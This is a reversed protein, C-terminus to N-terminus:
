VVVNDVPVVTTGELVSCWTFISLEQVFLNHLVIKRSEYNCVM